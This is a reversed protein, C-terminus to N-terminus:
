RRLLWLGICLGIFVIVLWVDYHTYHLERLKTRGEGGKYGRAEMALALEEARRFASIFLPILVPIYSKARRLINGSEFDAGRAMQAKKIKETEDWLTPIFRLAISMMLAFEHVPLGLRTFPKLLSEFADTLDMPSTTFTLLSAMIVLLIFRISIFVTQKLGEEYVTMIPLQILVAGGKTLFLHFIMTFGILFLIPKLALLFIRLSIRSLFMAVFTFALLFTYSYLHNSFFVLIMYAFVFLLKARPDLRHILSQGPIYQGIAIQSM